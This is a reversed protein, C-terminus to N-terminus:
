QQLLEVTHDFAKMEGPYIGPILIDPTTHYIYASCKLFGSSQKRSHRAIKSKGGAIHSLKVQEASKGYSSM